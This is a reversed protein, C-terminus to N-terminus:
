WALRSSSRPRSRSPEVPAHTWPWPAGALPNARATPAGPPARGRHGVPSVSFPLPSPPECHAPRPPGRTRPPHRPPPHPRAVYVPLRRRVRQRRQEAEMALSWLWHGGRATRAVGEEAGGGCAGGGVRNAAAAKRRAEMRNGKGCRGPCSSRRGQKAGLSVGAVEELRMSPWAGAGLLELPRRHGGSASGQM